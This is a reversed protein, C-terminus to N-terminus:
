AATGFVIRDTALVILVIFWLNDFL